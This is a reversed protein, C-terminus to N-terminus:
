LGTRVVKVETSSELTEHGMERGWDSQKYGGFLLVAEFVNYGNTWVSM